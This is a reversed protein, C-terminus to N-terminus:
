IESVQTNKSDNNRRQRISSCASSSEPSYQHNNQPQERQPSDQKRDASREEDEEMSVTEVSDKRPALISGVMSNLANTVTDFYSQPKEEVLTAGIEHLETQMRDQMAIYRQMLEQGEAFVGIRKVRNDGLEEYGGKGLCKSWLAADEGLEDRLDNIYHYIERKLWIEQDQGRSTIKTIVDELMSFRKDDDAIYSFTGIFTDHVRNPKPNSRLLYQPLNYLRSETINSPDSPEIFCKAKLTIDAGHDIFYNVINQFGGNAAMTICLNNTSSHINIAESFSKGEDENSKLSVQYDDKIINLREPEIDELSHGSNVCNSILESAIYKPTM